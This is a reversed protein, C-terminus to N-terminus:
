VSNKHRKIFYSKKATSNNISNLKGLYHREFHKKRKNFNFPKPFNTGSNFVTKLVKFRKTELSYLVSHFVLDVDQLDYVQKVKSKQEPERDSSFATISTVFM